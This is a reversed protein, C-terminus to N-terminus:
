RNAGRKPKKNAAKGANQSDRAASTDPSQASATLPQNIGLDDLRQEERDIQEFAEEWDGGKDGIIKERTETRIQLNIQDARADDLPNVSEWGPARWGVDLWEDSNALFESPSPFGDLGVRSAAAAFRRWTPALLRSVVFHQMRRYRKRDQQMSARAASFNVDGYNRTLEVVSLNCGMAISNEILNLWPLSDSGPVNPGVASIKDGTKGRWIMGPEIKELLNGFADTAGSEPDSDSLDAFDLNADSDTQIMYGWSSKMQGALLENDLYYGLRWLYMVIAALLSFGRYQGPRRRFFAYECQEAPLRIPEWDTAGVDNPMSPRIWYAVPRGTASDIEVGRIIPNQTKRNLAPVPTDREDTLREEPIIEIALPLSRKRDKPLEVYHVLCGGGVIVESLFLAQLDNITDHGTIDCEPACCATLGGWEQWARSWLKRRDSDSFKSKPSIGCEIVNAIYADVAAVAHPNNQVLDRARERLLRADMQHQRNPGLSQPNWEENTRDIQGGSFGGSGTWTGAFFANNGLARPRLKRARADARKHEQSLRRLFSAASEDTATLM